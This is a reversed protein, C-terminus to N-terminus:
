EYLVGEEAKKELFESGEGMERARNWYQRADNREGLQYLVDGYHELIVPNTDGDNELAKGIWLKAEEFYGMQYLVWGYTDLNASSGPKLETARKAMRAATELNENRLSLYYAWNNLVYDNDPELELVKEYSFDSNEHDGTQNYADGLYTYFQIMMPSNDIVYDLGKSLTAICEEWSKKQYYAAGAFLYLMAQEPFLELARLSESLLAETNNLESECLLLQEWVMYSSSDLSIVYRFADRAKEYEDRQALLDGYLSFVKPDEPHVETMILSLEFAEGGFEPREGSVLYYTLLIQIKAQAELGPNSFGEKLERFAQDYDGKKRYYDALSIHTFPNDPDIELITRYAELAKEEMGNTMCMEALIAWYRTELPHSAILRETEEIAKSVKGMQLYIEQKRLSTEEHVGLIAEIEDYIKIAQEPKDAMIYALALQNQLDPNGPRIEVIRRFVDLAEIYNGTKQLLNGYLLQYWINQTDTESAKRAMELAEVFKGKSLFLKAMEYMSAADSPDLELCASFLRLAEDTNGIIKQKNAEIFIETNLSGRIRQDSQGSHTNPFSHGPLNRQSSCGSVITLGLFFWVVWRITPKM